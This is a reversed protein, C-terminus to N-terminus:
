AQEMEAKLLRKNVAEYKLVAQDMALPMVHSGTAQMIQWQAEIMAKDELFARLGLDAFFDQMQVHTAAPGGFAFFYCTTDATLPTVAQCTFTTLLSKGPCEQMNAPDMTGAPYRQTQQIFIGPVTFTYRNWLDGGAGNELGSNRNAPMGCRAREVAVGNPLTTTSANSTLWGDASAESEGGFTERHVYAIHSLDLLNDHILRAPAVYDLRGPTMAWDPHRYGVFPPIQAEDVRAADGMWLWIAAHREVVPFTRVKLAPPITDQGPIEVARGDAAFRVGHYWCRIGGQECKGKSLPAARHPCRDEMAFVAGAEDRALVLPQGLITIATVEGAPVDKDWGAMYWANRPHQGGVADIFAGGAM